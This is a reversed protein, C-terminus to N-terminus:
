VSPAALASFTLTVRGVGIGRTGDGLSSPTFAFEVVGKGTDGAFAGTGKTITYTDVIVDPAPPNPVGAPVAVSEPIQLTVSGTSTTLRLTGNPPGSSVGKLVHLFGSAVNIGLPTVRGSAIMTYWTAQPTRRAFVFGRESGQLTIAAGSSSAVAIEAGHAHVAAVGSLLALSELSEVQLHVRRSARMTGEEVSWGQSRRHSLVQIRQLAISAPSKM